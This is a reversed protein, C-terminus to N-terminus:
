RGIPARATLRRTAITLSAAAPVTGTAAGEFAYPVDAGPINRGDARRYSVRYRTITVENNTTLPTPGTLGSGKPVLRLEVQGPDNFFTPCPNETTCVGGSTILTQVDSLLFSFFTGPDSGNAAQLRDIVLFVPAKGQRVVDGCSATAAILAVLLTLRNVLRTVFRRRWVNAMSIPKLCSTTVHMRM